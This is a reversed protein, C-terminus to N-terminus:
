NEKPTPLVLMQAIKKDYDMPTFEGLGSQPFFTLEGFVPREEVCYFDARVFPFPAALKRALGIMEQYCSPCPIQNRSVPIKRLGTFPLHQWDLDFMDISEGNGRNRIVQCFAPEGGFCYFKYDTLSSGSGDDLFREAVFRPKLDRYVWERNQWYYNVKSWRRLKQFERDWDLAAKDRCIINFHSGHTGKLVFSEPLTEPHIDELRDYVGYLENLYEEGIADRVVERVLYKDACRVALEDYWYLKLWQIKEAFSQPNELDPRRGFHQKFIHEVMAKDSYRLKYWDQRLRAAMYFLADNEKIIAKLDM